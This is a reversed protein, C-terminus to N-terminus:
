EGTWFDPSYGRTPLRGSVWGCRAECVFEVIEFFGCGTPQSFGHLGM